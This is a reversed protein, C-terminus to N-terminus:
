CNWWRRACCNAKTAFAARSARGPSEHSVEGRATVIYTRPIKHRPDLLWNSLRTDRDIAQARSMVGLKSLARALPVKM